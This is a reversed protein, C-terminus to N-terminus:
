RLCNTYGNRRLGCFVSRSSGLWRYPCGWRSRDPPVARGLHTCERCQLTRICRFYKRAAAMAASVAVMQVELGHAEWGAYDAIIVGLGAVQAIALDIFIIGRELVKQGLPVHTSLVLIGAVLAPGVISLDFANM